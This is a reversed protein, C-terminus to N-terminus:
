VDSNEERHREYMELELSSLVYFFAKKNGESDVTTLEGYTLTQEDYLRAQSKEVKFTDIRDPILNEVGFLDKLKWSEYEVSRTVSIWFESGQIVDKKGLFKELVNMELTPDPNMVMYFNDESNERNDPIFENLPGSPNVDLCTAGYMSDNGERFFPACATIGVIPENVYM